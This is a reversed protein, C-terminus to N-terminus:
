ALVEIKNVWTPLQKNASLIRYFKNQEGNEVKLEMCNVENYIRVLKGEIVSEDSGRKIAVKVQQGAKLKRATDVLYQPIHEAIDLDVNSGSIKGYSTGLFKIRFQSILLQPWLISTGVLKQFTHSTLLRDKKDSSLTAVWLRQYLGIAFGFVFYGPILILFWPITFSAKLGNM